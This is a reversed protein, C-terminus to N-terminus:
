NEFFHNVKNEEQKFEKLIHTAKEATDRNIRFSYSLYFTEYDFYEM